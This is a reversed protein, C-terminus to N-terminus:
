SSQIGIVFTGWSLKVIITGQIPRQDLLHDNCFFAASSSFVVFLYSSALFVFGRGGGGAGDLGGALWTPPFDSVDATISWRM